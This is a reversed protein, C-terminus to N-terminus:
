GLLDPLPPSGARDLQGRGYIQWARTNTDEARVTAEQTHDPM